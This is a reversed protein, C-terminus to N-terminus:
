LFGQASKLATLEMSINSKKSYNFSFTSRFDASLNNMFMSGVNQESHPM